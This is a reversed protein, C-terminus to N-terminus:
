PVSDIDMKEGLVARGEFHRRCRGIEVAQSAEYPRNSAAVALVVLDHGDDLRHVPSAEHVVGQLEVAPRYLDGIGLLHLAKSREGALRVADVGADQGLQAPAVEDRGDPERVRRHTKHARAQGSGDEGRRWRV